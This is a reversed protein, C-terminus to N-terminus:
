QSVALTEPLMGSAPQAIKTGATLPEGLKRFLARGWLNQAAAHAASDGFKRSIGPKSKRGGEGMTVFEQTEIEVEPNAKKFEAWTRAGIRVATGSDLVTATGGQDTSQDAADEKIAAIVEQPINYGDTTETLYWITNSVQKKLKADTIANLAAGTANAAIALNPGAWMAVDTAEQASMAGSGLYQSLRADSTTMLVPDVGAVNNAVIANAIEKDPINYKVFNKQAQEQMFDLQKQFQFTMKAREERLQRNHIQARQLRNQYQEESENQLREKQIGLASINGEATQIAEMQAQATAIKAALAQTKARAYEREEMTLENEYDNIAARVDDKYRINIEHQKMDTERQQEKTLAIGKRIGEFGEAAGMAGVDPTMGPFQSSTSQIISSISNAIGIGILEMAVQRKNIEPRELQEPGTNLLFDLAGRRAQPVDEKIQAEEEPSLEPALMDTMIDRLEKGGKWLEKYKKNTEIAADLAATKPDVRNAGVFGEEVRGMAAVQAEAVQKNSPGPKGKTIELRKAKGNTPRVTPTEKSYPPDEPDYAPGFQAAAEADVSRLDAKSWDIEKAKKKEEAM